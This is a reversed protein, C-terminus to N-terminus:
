MRRRTNWPYHDERGVILDGATETLRYELNVAEITLRWAEQLEPPTGDHVSRLVDYQARRRALRRRAQILVKRYVRQQLSLIKEELAWWLLSVFRTLQIERDPEPEAAVATKHPPRPPKAGGARAERLFADLAAYEDDVWPQM